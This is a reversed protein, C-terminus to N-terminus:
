LEWASQVFQLANPGKPIEGVPCGEGLTLGYQTALSNYQGMLTWERATRMEDGSMDCPGENSTAVSTIEAVSEVLEDGTACDYPSEELGNFVPLGLGALDNSLALPDYPGAGLSDNSPTWNSNVHTLLNEALWVQVACDRVEPHIMQTYVANGELGSETVYPVTVKVSSLDESVDLTCGFTRRDGPYLVEHISDSDLECDPDRSVEGLTVSLSDSNGITLRLSVRPPLPDADNENENKIVFPQEPMLAGMVSAGIEVRAVETTSSPPEVLASGGFHQTKPQACAEALLTAAVALQRKM